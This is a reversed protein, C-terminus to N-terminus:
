FVYSYHFAAKKLPLVADTASNKMTKALNRFHPPYEGSGFVVDSDALFFIWKAAVNM